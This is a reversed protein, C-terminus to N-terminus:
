AAATPACLEATEDLVAQVHRPDKDHEARARPARAAARRRGARSAARPRRSSRTPSWSCTAPASRRTSGRAAAALLAALDDGPRVEPLGPLPELAVRINLGRQVSRDRRAARPDAAGRRLPPSRPACRARPRGAHRRRARAVAAARGAADSRRRRRAGRPPRVVGPRLGASRRRRISLLANTGAGHRDPVIVVGPEAALLEDVEAADLAPCDGPVLLVRAAGRAVATRVGRDGGGVPGGGRPRARGRRARAAGARGSRRASVVVIVGDLGRVSGTGRCTAAMAAALAARDAGRGRRAAAQSQRVNSPFSPSRAWSGRVSGVSPPAKELTRARRPSPGRCRGDRRRDRADAGREGARREGPRGDAGRLARLDRRGHASARGLGHVPRDPGQAGRGTDNKEPEDAM